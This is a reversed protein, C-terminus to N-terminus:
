PVEYHYGFYSLMTGQNGSVSTDSLPEPMVLLLHDEQALKHVEYYAMIQPRRSLLAAGVSIVMAWAIRKKNLMTSGLMPRLNEDDQSITLNQSVTIPIHGL